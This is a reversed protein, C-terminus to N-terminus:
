TLEVEPVPFDSSDLEDVIEEMADRCDRYNANLDEHTESAGRLEESAYLDLKYAESLEDYIKEIIWQDDADLEAPERRPEYDTISLNYALTELRYVHVSFQDILEDDL